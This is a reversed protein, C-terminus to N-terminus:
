KKLMIQKFVDESVYRFNNGLFKFGKYVYFTVMLAILIIMVIEILHFNLNSNCNTASGIETRNECGIGSINDSYTVNNRSSVYTSINISDLHEIAQRLFTCNFHNDGVGITKLRTFMTGLDNYSFETINNGDIRLDYLDRAPFLIELAFNGIQNYSIDLNKLKNQHSFVGDELIINTSKLNLTTLNSLAVLSSKNLRGLNNYGIYLNTLETLSGICGLETLLNETLNLSNISSSVEDCTVKVIDNHDAYLHQVTNPIFLQKIENHDIWVRKANPIDFVKLENHSLLLWSLVSERNFLQGDIKSIDNHDLKLCKLQRNNVFLDKDLTKIHNYKLDIFWVSTLSSFMKSTIKTINNHSLYLKRLKSLNDFAGDDIETITRHSINLLELKPLQSFSHTQLYSHSGFSIDLSELSSLVFFSSENINNLGCNRCILSKLLFNENASIPPFDDMTSNEIKLSTINHVTSRPILEISNDEPVVNAILCNHTYYDPLCSFKRPQVLKVSMTLLFIFVLTFYM